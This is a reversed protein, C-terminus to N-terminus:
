APRWVFRIPRVLIVIHEGSSRVEALRLAVTEADFYKGLLLSMEAEAQEGYVVSALGTVALWADSTADEILLSVRPDRDVDTARATFLRAPLRLTAGDWYYMSSSLHPAGAPDNVALTAKAGNALFDHQAPTLALVPDPGAPPVSLTPAVAPAAQAPVPDAPPGDAPQAMEPPAMELPATESPADLDGVAAEGAAVVSRRVISSLGALRGATVVADRSLQRM